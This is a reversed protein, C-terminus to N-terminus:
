ATKARSARDAESKALRLQEEIMKFETIDAIFGHWLIGGDVDQEPAANGIVWREEGDSRCIRFEEKWPELEQASRDLAARFCAQDDPHIRGFVVEADDEVDLPSVEFIRQLGVSVWPFCFSGDSQRKWEFVVGPVQSTVKTMLDLANEMAHFANVGETDDVIVGLRRSQADAEEGCDTVHISVKRLEGYHNLLTAEHTYLHAENELLPDDWDFVQDRENEPLLERLSRGTLAKASCGIFSTFCHNVSTLRGERDLSFLPIPLDRLLGELRFREAESQALVAERLRGLRGQLRFLYAVLFGGLLTPALLGVGLGRMLGPELSGELDSGSPRLVWGLLPERLGEWAAITGMAFLGAGLILLSRLGASTQRTLRDCAAQESHTEM